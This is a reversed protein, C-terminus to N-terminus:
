AEDFDAGGVILEADLAKMTAVKVPKVTGPHLYARDCRDCLPAVRHISRSQRDIRLRAALIDGLDPISWGSM